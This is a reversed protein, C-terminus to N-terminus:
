ENIALYDLINHNYYNLQTVIHTPNSHVYARFCFTSIFPSVQLLDRDKVSETM